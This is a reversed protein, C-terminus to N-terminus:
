KYNGNEFLHLFLALQCITGLGFEGLDLVNFLGDNLQILSKLGRGRTITIPLKLHIHIPSHPHIYGKLSLHGTIKVHVWQPYYYRLTTGARM